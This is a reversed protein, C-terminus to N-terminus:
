GEAAHRKANMQLSGPDVIPVFKWHGLTATMTGQALSHPAVTERVIV